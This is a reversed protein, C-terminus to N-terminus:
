ARSHGTIGEFIGSIGPMYWSTEIQRNHWFHHRCIRSPGVKLMRCEERLDLLELLAARNATYGHGGGGAATLAAGGRSSSVGSGGAPEDEM